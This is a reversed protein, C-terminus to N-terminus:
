SAYEVVNEKAVPLFMYWCLAMLLGPHSASSLSKDKKFNIAASGEKSSLGCTVFPKEKSGKYLILEALPNNHIDYYFREDNVDIFNEKNEQGLEGIKIGYENRLTVKNRLFGENRIQFVRKENDCEVRATHSFPNIVLTLIKKDNKFLHYVEKKTDTSAIEWRM